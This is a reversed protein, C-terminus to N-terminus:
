WSQSCQSDNFCFFCTLFLMVSATWVSESRNELLCSLGGSSSSGCSYVADKMNRQIQEKQESSLQDLSLQHYAGPDGAVSDAHASIHRQAPQLCTSRGTCCDTIASISTGAPPPPPGEVIGTQWALADWDLVPISTFWSAAPRGFADGTIHPESM